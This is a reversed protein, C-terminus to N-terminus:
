RWQTRTAAAAAGCTSARAANVPYARVPELRAFWRQAHQWAEVVACAASGALEDLDDIGVAAWPFRDSTRGRHRLRVDGIWSPAGPPDLEVILNGDPALLEACRRLLRNPDGGIGINGDVLLVHQWHGEGLVRAFVDAREAPAGRRRAQRIAEASIDV